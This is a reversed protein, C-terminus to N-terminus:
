LVSGGSNRSNIGSKRRSYSSIRESDEKVLGTVTEATLTETENVVIGFGTREVFDQTFEVLTNTLIPLGCCLYESAKIPAAVENVIDKERFMVGLDAASLYGPM